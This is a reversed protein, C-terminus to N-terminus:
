FLSETDIVYSDTIIRFFDILSLIVGIGCCCSAVIKIIGKNVEGMMFNHIGLYGLFFCVLAITLKDYGAYGGFKKVAVGCNLCVSAGPQIPKGCNACFSSGEGKKAGCKLCIYQDGDMQTLQAGCAKCYM